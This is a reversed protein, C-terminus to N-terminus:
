EEDLEIGDEDLQRKVAAIIYAQRSSAKGSSIAKDLLEPFRETKRIQIAIRDNVRKHYEDNYEQKHKRAQESLRAM